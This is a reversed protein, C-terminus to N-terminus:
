FLFPTGYLTRGRYGIDDWYRLGAKRQADPFVRAVTEASLVLRRLIPLANQLVTREFGLSEALADGHMVYAGARLVRVARVALKREEDTRAEQIGAGALARVLLRSDEDPAAQTAEILDQLRVADGKCTPLLDPHVGMLHGAYRWLHQYSEQEDDSIRVGLKELGQMLIYSFLLTTAAMDHQNIPVGWASSNWASHKLLQARVNAHMLRVRLSAGYGEALLRLGGPVILSRVYRATENLRKPAREVLGGAMILPKNGGPSAYGLVISRAALVLGTLAGTRLVLAGGREIARFDVWAPVRENEEFFATLEKPAHDRALAAAGQTCGVHILTQVEDRPLGRVSAMAADALSDGVSLFAGVRDVRDGFRLRAADLNVYRSPLVSPEPSHIM